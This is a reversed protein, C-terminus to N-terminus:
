LCMLRSGCGSRSMSRSSSSSRPNSGSRSSSGFSFKSGSRSNCGSRSGSSSRASSSSGSRSSSGVEGLTVRVKVGVKFKKYGQGLVATSFFPVLQMLYPPAYVRASCVISAMPIYHSPTRLEYPLQM